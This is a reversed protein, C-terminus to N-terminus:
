LLIVYSYLELAPSARLLEAAAAGGLAQGNVCDITAVRWTCTPLVIIVKTHTRTMCRNVRQRACACGTDMAIVWRRAIM